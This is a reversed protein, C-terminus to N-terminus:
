CSRGEAEERITAVATAAWLKTEFFIKNNLGEAIRSDAHRGVNVLFGYNLDGHLRLFDDRM